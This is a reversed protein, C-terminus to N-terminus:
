AAGALSMMAPLTVVFASAALRNERAMAVLVAAPVGCTALVGLVAVAVGSLEAPELGAPAPVDLAM